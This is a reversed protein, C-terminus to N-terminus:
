HHAHDLDKSRFWSRTSLGLTRCLSVVAHIDNLLVCFYSLVSPCLMTVGVAVQPITLREKAAKDLLGSLLSQLEQSLLPLTYIQTYTKSWIINTSKDGVVYLKKPRISSLM